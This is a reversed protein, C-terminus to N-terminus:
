ACANIGAGELLNQHECTLKKGVDEKIEYAFGRLRANIDSAQKSAGESSGEGASASLRVWYKKGLKTAETQIVLGDFTTFRGKYTADDAFAVEDARRLDILALGEFATPMQNTEWQGRQRKGDPIDELTFDKDTPAKRSVIVKGGKPSTIELRKMTAAKVDLVKKSVWDAPGEGLTVSGEILWSEPKGAIRMYTGGRGTGFLDANRKGILGQAVVNGVEDRVTVKRSKAGEESVDRLELRDFRAPDSTKPELYRLQSLEVLLTKVNEFNAPYDNLEAIGWGGPVRHVTFKRDANQIEISQADNLKADLGEFVYPRDRPIMTAAPRNAISVAAAVVLVATISSFIIFSRPTM